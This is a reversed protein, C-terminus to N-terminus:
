PPDKVQRGALGGEACNGEVQGRGVGPPEPKYGGRPPSHDLSDSVEM